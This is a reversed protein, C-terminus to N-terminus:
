RAIALRVQGEVPKLLEGPEVGLAGALAILPGIRSEQKGQV